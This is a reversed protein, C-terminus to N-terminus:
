TSVNLRSYTSRGGECCRMKGKLKLSLSRIQNRLLRSKSANYTFCKKGYFSHIKKKKKMPGGLSIANDNEEKIRAEKAKKELEPDM